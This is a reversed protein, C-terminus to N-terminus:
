RGVEEFKVEGGLGLGDLVTQWAAVEHAELLVPRRDARNRIEQATFNIPADDAREEGELATLWVNHGDPQKEGQLLKVQYM